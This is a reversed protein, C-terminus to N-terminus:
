WNSFDVAQLNGISTTFAVAGLASTVGAPSRSVTVIPPSTYGFGDDNLFVEQLAGTLAFGDVVATSTSGIGAVTVTTIYGEESLRDDIAPINTDIIEDSPPLTRM